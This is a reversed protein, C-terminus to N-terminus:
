RRKGGPFSARVRGAVTTMQEDMQVELGTGDIVTGDRLIRVPEDTWLRKDHAHWRLVSTEVRLGDDSTLVVNGRIEVDKSEQHLDGEEGVVAWSRDREQVRVNPNRLATRGESDYILAQDAVLQWRVGGAAEEELRVEKIALDAASPRPGVSEVRVARSRAFLTVGVVVVFLAVVILIRQALQHM